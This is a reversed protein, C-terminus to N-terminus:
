DDDDENINEKEDGIGHSNKRLFILMDVHQPSLRSRLRNVVLSATSFVRESPVSTAPIGLYKVALQSLRPFKEQNVKWWDLPNLNLDANPEATYQEIQLM